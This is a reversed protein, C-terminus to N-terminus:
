FIFSVCWNTNTKTECLELQIVGKQLSSLKRFGETEWLMAATHNAPSLITPLSSVLLVWHPLPLKPFTTDRIRQCCFIEGTNYERPRRSHLFGYRQRNQIQTKVELFSSSFTLQFLEWAQARGLIGKTSPIDPYPQKSIFNWSRM